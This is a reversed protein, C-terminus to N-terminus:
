SMKERIQGDDKELPSWSGDLISQIITTFGNLSAINDFILVEDPFEINLEKELEVILSIFQISDLIYERLDLDESDKSDEIYIGNTELVDFIKERLIM